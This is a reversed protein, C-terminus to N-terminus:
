EYQKERGDGRLEDTARPRVILQPHRLHCPRTGNHDIGKLNVCFRFGFFRCYRRVKDTHRSEDNADPLVWGFVWRDRRLVRPKIETNEFCRVGQGEPIAVDNAEIEIPHEGTSADDWVVFKLELKVGVAPEVVDRAKAERRVARLSSVM